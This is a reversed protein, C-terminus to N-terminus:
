IICFFEYLHSWVRLMLTSFQVKSAFCVLNANKDNSKYNIYIQTENMKMKMLLKFTYILFLNVCIDDFQAFIAISKKRFTNKHNRLVFASKENLYNTRHPRSWPMQNSPGAAFKFQNGCVSTGHQYSRVTRWHKQCLVWKYNILKIELGCWCSTCEM